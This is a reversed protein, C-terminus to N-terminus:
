LLRRQTEGQLYRLCNKKLKAMVQCRTIVHKKYPAIAAQYEAYNRPLFYGNQGPTDLSLIPIGDEQCWVELMVKPISAVRRLERSPSYGDNMNQLVKNAEIVSFDLIDEVLSLLYQSSTFIDNAYEQYKESGLPGFYQAKLMESFGQIANLPTRLEHSMSALFESKAQNAQEVQLLARERDDEARKRDTIDTSASGFGILNGDSDRVPFKTIVLYQSFGNARRKEEERTVPKGYRLLEHESEFRRTNEPAPEDLVETATRGILNKESVGYWTALQKNVM